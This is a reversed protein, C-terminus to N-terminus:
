LVYLIICLFQSISGLLVFVHFVGHMYKQKKGIGYLVAGITYLIGGALLLAFGTSGLAQRVDNIAIVILWGMAIYCIMSFVQYKKIDIATLTIALAALGWEIGFIMWALTANVPELAVLMIPTYTGAILFYITCHDLIRFVKKATEHTLGHYISSMTYLLIMTVGYVASVIVGTANQRWAAMIICTFLVAIGMSGGVIHSVMNFIEEGRSYSPLTRDIKTGSM